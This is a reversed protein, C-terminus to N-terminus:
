VSQFWIMKNSRVLCFIQNESNFNTSQKWDFMEDYNIQTAAPRLPMANLANCLHKQVLARKSCLYLLCVVFLCYKLYLLVYRDCKM